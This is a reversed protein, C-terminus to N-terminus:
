DTLLGTAANTFVPNLQSDWQWQSSDTQGLELRQQAERCRYYIWGPKYSKAAAVMKIRSKDAGAWRLAAYYNMASLWLLTTQYSDAEVLPQNIELRFAPPIRVLFPTGCNTCVPATKRNVAGCHECRKLAQAAGTETANGAAHGELRWTRPADPLGRQLINGAHDLILAKPKNPAPRL